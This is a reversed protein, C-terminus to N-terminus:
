EKFVECAVYGAPEARAIQLLLCRRLRAPLRRFDYQLALCEFIVRAIRASLNEDAREAVLEDPDLIVAMDQGYGPRARSLGDREDIIEQEIAPADHRRVWLGFEGIDCGRPARGESLLHM